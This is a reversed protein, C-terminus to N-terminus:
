RPTERWIDARYEPKADIHEAVALMFLILLILRTYTDITEGAIAYLSSFICADDRCTM